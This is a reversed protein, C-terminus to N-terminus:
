LNAVPGALAGRAEQAVTTKTEAAQESTEGLVVGGIPLLVLRQLRDRKATTFIARAAEHVLVAALVIFFLAIGRLSEMGAKTTQTILLALLLFFTLHLRVEIGFFRGVPISWARILSKSLIRHVLEENYSISEPETCKFSSIRTIAPRYRLRRNIAGAPESVRGVESRRRSVSKLTREAPIASLTHSSRKEPEPATPISASLRPARMTYKTSLAARAAFLM